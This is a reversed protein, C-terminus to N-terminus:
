SYGKLTKLIKRLNDYDADTVSALGTLTKKLPHLVADRQPAAKLALMADRIATVQMAPLTKSAVFVHESIPPTWSLLKLGKDVNKHYVAEKVAGADFEGLLVASAVNDHNGLFEFSGLDKASIGAGILMYRPVLHSMTSHPSGFAFHKGKLDAINTMDAGPSMIVAGKFTPEGNVELRALLPKAGYQASMEVYSAPGLYAFDVKDEGVLRTHEVYDTAIQLKIPKGVTNSIYDILPNFKQELKDAPLYPHLGFVLTDNALVSASLLTSTAGLLFLTKFIGPINYLIGMM